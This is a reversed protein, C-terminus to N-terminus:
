APSSQTESRTATRLGARLFYLSSGHRAITPMVRQRRGLECRSNRIQDSSKADATIDATASNLLVGTVNTVGAVGYGISAIQTYPLSTGLPLLNIFNQVATGVLGVVTAHTFGAATTIVLTPTATVVIPAFVAFQVTLARVADIANAVTNVLTSSPDGTGDDWVM